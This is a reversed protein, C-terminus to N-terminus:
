KSESIFKLSTFQYFQPWFSHLNKDEPAYIIDPLQSNSIYSELSCLVCDSGWHLGNLMHIEFTFGKVAQIQLNNQHSLLMWMREREWETKRESENQMCKDRKVNATKLIVSERQTWHKYEKRLQYLRWQIVKAQSFWNTSNTSYVSMCISIRMACPENRKVLLMRFSFIFLQTKAEGIHFDARMYWGVGFCNNMWNPQSEFECSENSIHYSVRRM